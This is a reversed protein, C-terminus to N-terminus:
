SEDYIVYPAKPKHWQSKGTRENFYFFAQYHRDFGETWVVEEEEEAEGEEEGEEELLRSLGEEDEDEENDEEDEEDDGEDWRGGMRGVEERGWLDGLAFREGRKKKKGQWKPAMVPSVYGSLDVEDEEDEGALSSWCRSKLAEEGEEEEEEEDEEDEEDEEKDEGEEGKEDEEVGYKKRLREAWTSAGVSGGKVMLELLTKLERKMENGKEVKKLVEDEVRGALSGEGGGERRKRAELKFDFPVSFPELVKMHGYLAMLRRGVRTLVGGGEEGEKGGGAGDDADEEEEDDDRNRDISDVSQVAVHLAAITTVLDEEIAALFAEVESPPSKKQPM